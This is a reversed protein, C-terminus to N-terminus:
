DVENELERVGGGGGGKGGVDWGLRSAGQGLDGDAAEGRGWFKIQGATALCLDSTDLVPLRQCDWESSSELVSPWCVSALFPWFLRATQTQCCAIRLSLATFAQRMGPQDPQQNHCDDRNVVNKQWARGLGSSRVAVDRIAYVTTPPIYVSTVSHM